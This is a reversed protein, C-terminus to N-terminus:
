YVLLLMKYQIWYRIRSNLWHLSLIITEAQSLFWLNSEDSDSQFMGLINLPDQNWPDPTWVTVHHRHVGPAKSLFHMNTSCAMSHLKSINIIKNHQQYRDNKSLMIWDDFVLKFILFELFKLIEFFFFSKRFIWSEFRSVRIWNGIVYGSSWLAM